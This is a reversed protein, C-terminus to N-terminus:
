QRRFQAPLQNAGLYELFPFLFVEEPTYFSAALMGARTLGIRYMTEADPPYWESTYAKM